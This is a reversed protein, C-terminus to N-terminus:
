KFIPDIRLRAETTKKAYKKALEMNQKEKETNGNIKAIKALNFHIIGRSGSSLHDSYELLNMLVLEIKKRDAPNRIALATLRDAENRFYIDNTDYYRNMESYLEHNGCLYGLCDNQSTYRADSTRFGKKLIMFSTALGMASVTVLMIATSYWPMISENSTLTAREGTVGDARLQINPQNPLQDASTVLIYITGSEKPNLNDIRVSVKNTSNEQAYTFPASPSFTYQNVIGDKLSVECVINDLVKSGDNKIIVQYSAIQIETTKFPITDQSYYQLKLQPTNIYDVIMPAAVGVLLSAIATVVIPIIIIKWNAKSTIEAKEM